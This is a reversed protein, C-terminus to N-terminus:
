QRAIEAGAGEGKGPSFTVIAWPKGYWHTQISKVTVMWKALEPSHGGESVTRHDPVCPSGERATMVGWKSLHLGQVSVSNGTCLVVTEFRRTGDTDATPVVMPQTSNRQLQTVVERYPEVATRALLRLNDRLVTEQQQAVDLEGKAVSNLEGTLSKVGRSM